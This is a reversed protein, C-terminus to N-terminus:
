LTINLTLAMLSQNGKFKDSNGINLDQKNLNGLMNTFGYIYQARIFLRRVGLTLGVAGNVNFNTIDRIDETFLTDYGSVIYGEKDDDSLELESNYQLMPGVDLTLNNSILKVHLLFSIDAAFVKYEVFENSLSGLQFADIDVKSESLQINYSVNYWKHPLDVSASMGGIFGTSAKTKFNDTLIDFQTIGGQLGIGNKIKYSKRQGYSITVFAICIAVLLYSKTNKM